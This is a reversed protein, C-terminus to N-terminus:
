VVNPACSIQAQSPLPQALDIDWPAWNQDEFSYVYVRVFTAFPIWIQYTLYVYGKTFYPIINAFPTTTSNALDAYIADRATGGIANIGDLTIIYINDAAIFAVQGGYQAISFPYVNGIGRESAWLHDFEFPTVASGTPTMETIGWTRFIYGAVGIMALGTIQDGVDLFANFGASTNQTPDWQTPLGNASWWIVNPYRYSIGTGQDLVSVNALLLQDNLESLFVGGISMPGVITPGGPLSGGVTPSDTLSIGAVSQSTSLDSFTQTFVPSGAIGDWYALFPTIITVGHFLAASVTYWIQNAFARYALPNSFTPSSVGSAGVSTWGPTTNYQFLYQGAWTVVHWVGNNDQFNTIGLQPSSLGGPPIAGTFLFELNPRSRLEANRLM